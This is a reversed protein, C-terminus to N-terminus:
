GRAGEEDREMVLLTTPSGGQMSWRAYALPFQKQVIGLGFEVDSKDKLVDGVRRMGLFHKVLTLILVSLSPTPLKDDGM